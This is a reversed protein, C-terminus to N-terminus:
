ESLVQTGKAIKYSPEIGYSFDNSTDEQFVNESDYIVEQIVKKEKKPIPVYDTILQTTGWNEKMYSVDRDVQYNSM